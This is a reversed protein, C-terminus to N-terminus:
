DCFLDILTETLIIKSLEIATNMSALYIAHGHSLDNEDCAKVCVNINSVFKDYLENSAAKSIKNITEEIQQETIEKM